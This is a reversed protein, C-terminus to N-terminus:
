LLTSGFTQGFPRVCMQLPSRLQVERWNDWGNKATTIEEYAKAFHQSFETNRNWQGAMLSDTISELTMKSDAGAILAGVKSPRLVQRSAKAAPLCDRLSYIWSVIKSPIEVIQLNSPIQEPFIKTFVYTLDCNSLFNDQSLM